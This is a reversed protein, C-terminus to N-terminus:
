FLIKETINQSTKNEQLRKRSKQTKKPVPLHDLLPDLWHTTIILNLYNLFGM